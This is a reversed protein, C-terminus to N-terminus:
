PGKGIKFVNAICLVFHSWGCRMLFILTKCINLLNLEALM